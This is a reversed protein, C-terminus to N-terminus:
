QAKLDFNIILNDLAQNEKRMREVRAATTQQQAAHAETMLRIIIDALDAKPGDREQWHRRVFRDNVHLRQYDIRKAQERWATVGDYDPYLVVDRGRDIIPQLRERSLFSLGGCAMWLQHQMDGYAIACILATKESEVVNVTAQPLYDLLHMGFLTTRVEAREPDYQGAAEMKTHIWSFSGRTDRDRHGDPKYRMMKGTRLQGREDLQWFITHGDKSHGIMYNRLMPEIRQRQESSWPLTRLWQCLTDHQTDARRLIMSRDFVMLPLPPAPTRPKCITPTFRESGEVAIGYKRGLWQIAETFKLGDHKMLFDVPGGSEGCAFCTYINRRPSIKFSGLHRDQHFPCLCTYGTGDRKLDYYDAIVDVISSAEKVRDITQQDIMIRQKARDACGRYASCGAHNKKKTRKRQEFKAAGM